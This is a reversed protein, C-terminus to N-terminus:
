NTGLTQEAGAVARVLYEEMIRKVEPGSEKLNTTSVTFNEVLNKFTVTVNRTGGGAIGSIGNSISSSSAPISSSGPKKKTAPMMGTEGFLKKRDAWMDKNLKSYAQQSGLYMNYTGVPLKDGNKALENGFNMSSQLYGGVKKSFEDNSMKAIQEPSLKNKSVIEDYIGQKGEQAIRKSKGSFLVDNEKNNANVINQLATPNFLSNVSDIIDIFGKKISVL